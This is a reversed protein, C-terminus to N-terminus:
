PSPRRRPLWGFVGNVRVGYWAVGSDGTRPEESINVPAGHPLRAIISFEYDPQSYLATDALVVYAPSGVPFAADASAPTATFAAVIM